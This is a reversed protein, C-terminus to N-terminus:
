ESKKDGAFLKSLRIVLMDNQGKILDSRFEELRAHRPYHECLERLWGHSCFGDQEPKLHINRNNIDCQIERKIKWIKNLLFTSYIELHTEHKICNDLGSFEDFVPAWRPSPWSRKVLFIRNVRFSQRKQGSFLECIVNTPWFYSVNQAVEEFHKLINVDHFCKHNCKQRLRKCNQM